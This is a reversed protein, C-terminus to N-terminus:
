QESTWKTFKMFGYNTYLECHKEKNITKKNIKNTHM